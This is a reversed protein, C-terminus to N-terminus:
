TNGLAVQYVGWTLEATRRWSFSKARALSKKRLEGSWASDELIGALGEELARESGDTLLAADGAVDGAATDRVAVVPAGCAMAEVVPLGFGEYSSPYVFASTGSYLKALDEDTVGRMQKVGSQLAMQSGGGVVVLEISQRLGSRIRSFVRVLMDLNKRRQGSGVYLIYQGSTKTAPRPSFASAAALPTVAIKQRAASFRRRVEEAVRESPVIVASARRIAGPLRRAVRKAQPPMAFERARLPSLDHVTVVAPTKGLLPVAFDTGHFLSAGTERLRRPLGISWWRGEILSAEQPCSELLLRADPHLERLAAALEQTYRAIGTFPADVVPTGDLVITMARKM